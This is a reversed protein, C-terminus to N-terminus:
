KTTEKKIAFVKNRINILKLIVDSLWPESKLKIEKPSQKKLPAHRNVSVELKLYFDRFSDHVNDHSYNWTQILVDDRFSESSFHSYDRQFINVNKLDVKERKVSLFQSFYESLPLLINGSVMNDQINDSFLNDIVSATDDPM